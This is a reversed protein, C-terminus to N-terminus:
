SLEKGREGGDCNVEECLAREGECANGLAENVEVEGRRDM